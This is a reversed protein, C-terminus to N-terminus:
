IIKSSFTSWCIVHNKDNLIGLKPSKPTPYNTYISFFNGLKPSNPTSLYHIKLIKWNQLILFPFITYSCFNGLNPPILLTYAYAIQFCISDKLWYFTRIKHFHFSTSLFFLFIVQWKFNRVKHFQFHSILIFSFSMAKKSM